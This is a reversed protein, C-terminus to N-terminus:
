KKSGKLGLDKGGARSSSEIINDWSKGQKRLYDITPGLKDGYKEINRQYIKELMDPPTISKYKEGISRRLGHLTTAIEEKTSGASAMRRGYLNLSGVEEIYRSRLVPAAYRLVVLEEIIAVPMLLVARSEESEWAIRAVEKTSSWSLQAIEKAPMGQLTHKPYDKSFDAYSDYNKWKGNKFVSFHSEEAGKWNKGEIRTVTKDLQSNRYVNWGNGGKVVNYQYVQVTRPDGPKRSLIDFDDNAGFCDKVTKPGGKSGGVREGMLGTPDTFNVPDNWVYAYPSITIDALPDVSM